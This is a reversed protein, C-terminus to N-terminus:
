YEFNNEVWNIITQRKWAPRGNMRLDPNPFEQKSLLRDITRTSIGLIHRLDPKWYVLREGLSKEKLLM